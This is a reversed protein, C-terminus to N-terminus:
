VAHAALQPHRPPAATHSAGTRKGCKVAGCAQGAAQQRALQCPAGLPPLVPLCCTARLLRASLRRRGRLSLGGGGASRRRGRGGRGCAPQTRGGQRGRVRGRCARMRARGRRRGGGHGRPRGRRRGGRRGARGCGGRRAGRRAIPGSRRGNRSHRLQARQRRRRGRMTRSHALRRGIAPGKRGGWGRVAGCRCGPCPGGGRRPGRARCGRGSWRSRAAHRRGPAAAAGQCPGRGGRRSHWKFRPGKGHRRRGRGVDLRPRRCGRWGCACRWRGRRASV